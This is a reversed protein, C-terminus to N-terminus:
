NERRLKLRCYPPARIVQISFCGERLSARSFGAYLTEEFNATIYMGRQLWGRKGKLLDEKFWDAQRYYNKLDHLARLAGALIVPSILESLPFGEPPVNRFCLV